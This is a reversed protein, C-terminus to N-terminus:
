ECTKKLRRKTHENNVNVVYFAFAQLRQVGQTFKSGFLTFM